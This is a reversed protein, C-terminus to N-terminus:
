IKAIPKDAFWEALVWQQGAGRGELGVICQDLFSFHRCSDSFRRLPDQRAISQILVGQKVLFEIILSTNPKYEQDLDTEIIFIISSPKCEVSSNLFSFLEELIDIECGDVDILILGKGIRLAFLDSCSNSFSVLHSIGNKSATDLVLKEASSNIDVGHSPIKCYYAIGNVYYGEACGIDIFFDSNLGYELILDQVEREYTGHIKALLVSSLTHTGCLMGSFLGDLVMVHSNKRIIDAELESRHLTLCAKLMQKINYGRNAFECIIRHEDPSSIPVSFSPKAFDSQMTSHWIM